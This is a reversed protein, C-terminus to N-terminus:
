RSKDTHRPWFRAKVTKHTGNEGSLPRVCRVWGCARHNAVEVARQEVAPEEEVRLVLLVEAALRCGVGQM